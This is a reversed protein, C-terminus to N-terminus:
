FSDHQQQNPKLTRRRILDHQTWIGEAKSKRRPLCDTSQRHGESELGSLRGTATARCPPRRAYNAPPIPRGPEPAGVVVVAAAM